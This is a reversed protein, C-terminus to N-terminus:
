IAQLYWGIFKQMGGLNPINAVMDAACQSSVSAWLLLGIEADAEKCDKLLNNIDAIFSEDAKDSLACHCSYMMLGIELKSAVFPKNAVNGRFENRLADLQQTPELQGFEASLSALAAPRPMPAGWHRLRARLEPMSVNKGSPLHMLMGEQWRARWHVFSAVYTLAYLEEAVEFSFVSAWFLAWLAHRQQEDACLEINSSLWRLYNFSKDYQDCVIIYAIELRQSAYKLFWNRLKRLRQEPRFTCIEQRKNLLVAPDLKIGWTLLREQLDSTAFHGLAASPMEYERVPQEFKAQLTRAFLADEAENSGLWDEYLLIEAYVASQVESAAELRQLLTAHKDRLQELEPSRAGRPSDELEFAFALTNDIESQLDAINKALIAYSERLLELNNKLKETGSQRERMEHVIELRARALETHDM